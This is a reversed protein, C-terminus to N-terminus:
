ARTFLADRALRQRALGFHGRRVREHFTSSGAHLTSRRAHSISRYAYLSSLMTHLTTLTADSSKRPVGTNMM